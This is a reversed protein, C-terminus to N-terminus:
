LYHRCNKFITKTSHKKFKGLASVNKPDTLCRLHLKKRFYTVPKTKFVDRLHWDFKSFIRVLNYEPWTVEFITTGSVTIFRNKPLIKM